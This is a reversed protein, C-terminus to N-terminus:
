YQDRENAKDGTGGTRERNLEGVAKGDLGHALADVARHRHIQRPVTADEDAFLGARETHHFVTRQEGFGKHADCDIINVGPFVREYSAQESTLPTHISM